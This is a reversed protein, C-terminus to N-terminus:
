RPVAAEPAELARRAASLAAGEGAKFGHDQLGREIATVATIVDEDRAEAAHLRFRSRCRPCVIFELLRRRM